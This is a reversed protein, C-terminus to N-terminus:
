FPPLDAGAAAASAFVFYHGYGWYFATRYNNLQHAVAQEEFYIWWMCFIVLLAGLCSLMFSTDLFHDVIGGQVAKATSM